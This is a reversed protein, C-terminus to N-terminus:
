SVPPTFPRELMKSSISDAPYGVESAMVKVLKIINDSLRDEGLEDHMKTLAKM